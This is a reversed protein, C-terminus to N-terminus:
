RDCEIELAMLDINMTRSTTGNTKRIVVTVATARSTGTPINATETHVLTGNIFFEARSASANTLIEFHTWATSAAVGTDTPGATVSNSYSEAQWNGSGVANTYSFFVGDTPTTFARRDYFGITATYTEAVTSLVPLQCIAQLRHIRTGLVISAAGDTGAGAYGTATTGTSSALVGVRNGDDLTVTHSNTAGTGVAIATWDSLTNMDSFLVARKRYNSRWDVTVTSGAGGDTVSIHNGGTLTRSNVGAPDVTVLPYLEAPPIFKM